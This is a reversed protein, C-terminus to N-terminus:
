LYTGSRGPNRAGGALIPRLISFGYYTEQEYVMAGALLKGDYGPPVLLYKAGAGQERGKAGVDELPRQWADMITGFVGVGDMSKPIEVVIPGNELTWYNMIYPTTNNPTATQFRWDQVKSFYGTDKPGVGADALADRYFKFNMLPMAWVAADISRHYTMRDPLSAKQLDFDEARPQTSAVLAAGMVIVAIIVTKMKKM